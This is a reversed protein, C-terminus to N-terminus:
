EIYDDYIVIEDEIQSIEIAKELSCNFGDQIFPLIDKNKNKKNNYFFNRRLIIRGVSKYLRILGELSLTEIKYFEDDSVKTILFKQM